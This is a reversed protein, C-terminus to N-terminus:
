KRSIKETSIYPLILVMRSYQRRTVVLHFRYQGGEQTIGIQAVSRTQGSGNWDLAVEKTAVLNQVPTRNGHYGNIPRNDWKEGNPGAPRNHFWLESILNNGSSTNNRRSVVLENVRRLTVRQGLVRKQSREDQGAPPSSIDFGITSHVDPFEQIKVYVVREANNRYELYGPMEESQVGDAKEFVTKGMNGVNIYRVGRAVTFLGHVTIEGSSIAGWGSSGLHTLEGYITIKSGNVAAAPTTNIGSGYYTANTVEVTTSTNAYVAACLGDHSVSVSLSVNLAGNKPDLLRVEGGNRVSLAYIISARVDIIMTKGNLDFTIKKNDIVIASFVNIDDLLKIITPEDAGQPVAAIADGISLYETDGISCVPIPPKLYIATVVGGSEAKYELYGPKNDSPVGDNIMFVHRNPYGYLSFHHTAGPPVSVSGEINVTGGYGVHVARILPSMSTINGYVNVSKLSYVAYGTIHTSTTNNIVNTVEALIGSGDVNVASFTGTTNVNLEGNAPDLLRLEGGSSVNIGYANATFEVNLTKGNLDLTIKKNNNVAIQQDTDVDTLLKIITEQNQPVDAIAAQVTAYQVGSAEIICVNQANANAAGWFALATIAAIRCIANSAKTFNTFLVKMYM